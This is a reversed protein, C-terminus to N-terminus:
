KISMSFIPLLISMVIGGILGGVVLMLMPELLSLLTKIKNSNDKNYLKSTNLLINSIESTEEGLELSKIFNKPIYTYRKLGDSLKKGEKILDSSKLFADKLLINDATNSALRSSVVLPIGSKNLISIIYAMRSLESKLLIKGILPTKFKLSDILYNYKFFYKKLSIHLTILGLIFVIIFIKSNILFNSLGILIQTSKPLEQNLDSFMLTIEPVVTVLMIYIMFISTLIIFIPYSIASIIQQKTNHQQEIYAAMELLTDKLFGNTESVKISEIFYPQIKYINQNELSLYFSNGEEISKIIQTYFKLVNKNEEQSALLRLGKLIPIGSELYIALSNCLDILYTEKANKIFLFNYDKVEKVDKFIINKKQLEIVASNYNIAEITDEEEIGNIIKTYRFKNINM